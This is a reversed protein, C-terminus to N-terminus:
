IGGESFINSHNKEEYPYFTLKRMYYDASTENTLAGAPVAAGAGDLPVPKSVPNNAQDLIARRQGGVLENFGADWVTVIHQQPDYLWEVNVNWLGVKDDYDANYGLCLLTRRAAGLFERDNTTNVYATLSAFNPSRVKTNTYTLRLLCRNETLGDLPDGASNRAFRPAADHEGNAGHDTLPCEKQETSISLRKWTEAEQDEPQEQESEEDQAEYAVTIKVARDADDGKYYAMKRSKVTFMVGAVLRTEGVKPITANGLNTWSTSDEALTGFDPTSNHLALLDVSGALTIRGKDGLTESYEFSRLERVDTIAM